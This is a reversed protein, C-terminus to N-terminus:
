GYFYVKKSARTVGVYWLSQRDENDRCINFDRHCVVVNEYTSGQSKHCTIAYSYGVDAFREMFSYMYRWYRGQKTTLAMQKYAHVTAIYQDESDEHLIDIENGYGVDCRYVKFLKDKYPLEAISYSKVELEDNTTYLVVPGNVIPKNVVLREGPVIKQNPSDYIYNRIDTNIEDVQRNTYAIVKCYDPNNRYDEQKYMDLIEPMEIRGLDNYEKIFRNVVSPTYLGKRIYASLPIIGSATDQRIIDTLGHPVINYQERNSRRFPAAVKNEDGVPRLQKYDGVFIIPVKSEMLYTFLEENLMSSEDVVVADYNRINNGKTRDQVFEQEGTRDNVKPMLGLLSHITAYEAGPVRITDRLVKVAKNVPATMAIKGGRSYVYEKLTYSITVTKGTGAFGYLLQYGEPKDLYDLLAEKVELQRPTLKM